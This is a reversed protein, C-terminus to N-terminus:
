LCLLDGAKVNMNTNMVAGIKSLIQLDHSLFIYKKVIIIPNIMTDTFPINIITVIIGIFYHMINM